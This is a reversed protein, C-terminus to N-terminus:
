TPVPLPAEIAVSFAIVSDSSMIVSESNVADRRNTPIEAFEM